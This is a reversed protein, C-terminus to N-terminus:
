AAIVKLVGVDHGVIRVKAGAALDPGSIRWDTDGLRLKGFGNVIPTDIVAEHGVFREARNNLFPQDTVEKHGRSYRRWLLVSVLGLAGFIVWQFPQSIGPVFALIGTALGSIGLWLFFGGPVVLELALLVLGAVMWSWPGYSSILDIIQM